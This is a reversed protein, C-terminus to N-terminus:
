DRTAPEDVVVATMQRRKAVFLQWHHFNFTLDSRSPKHMTCSNNTVSIRTRRESLDHQGDFRSDGVSSDILRRVADRAARDLFPANNQFPPGHAPGPSYALRLARM